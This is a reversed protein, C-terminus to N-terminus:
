GKITRELYRTIEAIKKNMTEFEGMVLKLKNLVHELGTKAEFNLAADFQGPHSSSPPCRGTSNIQKYIMQTEEM